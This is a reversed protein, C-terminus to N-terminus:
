FYHAGLSFAGILALMFCLIIFSWLRFMEDEVKKYKIREREKIIEIFRDETLVKNKKNNM